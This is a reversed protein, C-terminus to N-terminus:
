PTGAGPQPTLYAAITEPLPLAAAEFDRQADRAAVALHEASEGKKELLRVRLEAVLARPIEAEPDEPAARGISTLARELARQARPLDDRALAVSSTAHHLHALVLADPEFHPSMRALARAAHDEAQEIRGAELLADIVEAHLKTLTIWDGGIEMLGLLELRRGLAEETRELAELATIRLIHANYRTFHRSEGAALLLQEIRDATEITAAPDGVQLAAEAQASLVNARMIVHDPALRAYIAEARAFDSSAAETAGRLTHALGLEYHLLAVLGHADSGLREAAIQLADEYYREALEVQGADLQTDGLAKLVHIHEVSREGFLNTTLDQARELTEFAEEFRKRHRALEGRRLQLKAMRPGTGRDVRAIMAATQELAVEAREIEHRRFHVNALDLWADVTTAHHSAALALHAADQLLPEAERYAEREIAIRGRWLVAEALQPKADRERALAEADQALRTATELDGTMTLAAVRALTETVEPASHSAVSSGLDCATANELSSLVWPLRQVLTADASALVKATSRMEELGRELCSRRTHASPAPDPAALTTCVETYAQSWESATRSLRSEANALAKSAEPLRTRMFAAQREARAQPGLMDEVRTQAAPCPPPAPLLAYGTVALALAAAAGTGAVQLRRRPATNLATLLATMSPHRKEPQVELGRSLAHRLWTPRWPKRPPHKLEELVLARLLEGSTLGTYPREGYLAEWLAVCFSFQDSAEGVAQAMMQEPSMYAPTGLTAGTATLRDSLLTHSPDPHVFETGSTETDDSAIARALGFDLVCVRGDPRVMVNSPKFDRHVIGAAHAAAVAQGAQLYKDLIDRWPHTASKQWAALTPGPVFEMALYVIDGVEGVEYVHAIGPHSLQALATAERKLRIRYRESFEAHLVKLAVARQLELDRAEFVEGMGGIGVRRLVDYRGIRPTFTPPLDPFLQREVAARMAMGALDRGPDTSPADGSEWSVSVSATPDDGRPGGDSPPGASDPTAVDNTM